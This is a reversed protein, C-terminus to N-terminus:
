WTKDLIQREAIAIHFFIINQMTAQAQWSALWHYYGCRRGELVVAAGFVDPLAFYWFGFRSDTKAFEKYHLFPVSLQM